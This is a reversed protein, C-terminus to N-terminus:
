PKESVIFSHCVSLFEVKSSSRQCTTCTDTVAHHNERLVEMWERRRTFEIKSIDYPCILSCGFDEFKEHVAHELELEASIGDITSVDSVIRSVIRFPSVLGTMINAIEKRSKKLIEKHGGCTNHIQIVRLM